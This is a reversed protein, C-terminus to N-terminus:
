GQAEEIGSRQGGLEMLRADLKEWITRQRCYGIWAERRDESQAPMPSRETLGSKFWLHFAGDPDHETLWTMGRGVKAALEDVTLQDTM